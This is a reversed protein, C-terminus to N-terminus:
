LDLFWGVVAMWLMSMPSELNRRNMHLKYGFYPAYYLVPNTKDLLDHAREKHARPAVKRLMISIRRQSIERHCSGQQLQYRLTGQM